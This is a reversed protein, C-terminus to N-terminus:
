PDLSENAGRLASLDHAVTLPDCFSSCRRLRKGSNSSRTVYPRELPPALSAPQDLAELLRDFTDSSDTLTAHSRLIEEARDDGAATVLALSVGSETSRGPDSTPIASALSLRVNLVKEKRGM